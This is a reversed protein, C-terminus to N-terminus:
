RTKFNFLVTGSGGDTVEMSLQTAVAAQQGSNSTIANFSYMTANSTGAAIILMAGALLSFIQKKM